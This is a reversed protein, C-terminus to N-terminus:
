AVVGAEQKQGSFQIELWVIRGDGSMSRNGSDATCPLLAILSQANFVSEVTIIEPAMTDGCNPPPNLGTNDPFAGQRSAVDLLEAAHRITLPSSM